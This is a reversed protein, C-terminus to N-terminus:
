EVPRVYINEVIADDLGLLTEDLRIVFAPRRQEVKIKTGPLLGFAALRELREPNRTSLYAVIGEEGARLRSAPVVLPRVEMLGKTCCEGKPIPKGHPCTAPHGLMICVSDTAKPSLLHEFKCASSEVEEIELALVDNLLREALRHRRVVSRAQERGQPTLTLNDGERRVLGLTVAQDVAQALEEELAACSCYPAKGEREATEEVTWMEELLEEVLKESIM